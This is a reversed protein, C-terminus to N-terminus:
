FEGAINKEIHYEEFIKSDFFDGAKYFVTDVNIWKKEDILYVSNWAHSVFQAGNFAEGIIVRTKIGVAKCMSTFLCAYDFCIGKRKKYAVIAGSEQSYEDSMIKEAKIDDYEINEGVWTYLREAMERQSNCKNIIEKAKSNIEKNSEVAKDITVGNYYVLKGSLLSENIGDYASQIKQNEVINKVKEYVNLGNFYSIQGKESAINNYLVLSICLLVILVLGRIVGFGVSFIIMFVSNKYIKKNNSCLSHLAKLIIQIIFKVLCFFAVIFAVHIINYYKFSGPFLSQLVNRALLNFREYNTIMLMFTIITSTGSIISEIIENLDSNIIVIRVSLIVSILIIGFCILEQAAIDM